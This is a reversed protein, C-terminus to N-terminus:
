QAVGTNWAKRLKTGCQSSAFGGSSHRSIIGYTKKDASIWPYFGFAGPSSFTGDGQSDDEVWHNYSYHWAVTSPSSAATPCSAGVLTCVPDAGLFNYMVLQRSLIARLFIAFQNPSASIGGALLPFAYSFGPSIGLTPFVLNNLQATTYSGIELGGNALSNAAFFEDHAGDYHFQGVEAPLFKYNPGSSLTLCNAVTTSSACKIPNLGSYGSLMRLASKQVSTLNGNTLQLMFAGFVFKSASAIPISTTGTYTSGVMGSGMAGQEDGIEWYFDGLQTCLSNTKATQNTAAIKEALPISSDPVPIPILPPNPTQPSPTGAATNTQGQTQETSGIPACNQFSSMLFLGIFLFIFVRSHFPFM